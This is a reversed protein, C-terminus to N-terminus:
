PINRRKEEENRKERMAKEEPDIILELIRESPVVVAIGSNVFEETPDIRAADELYHGHVLGMLWFGTTM